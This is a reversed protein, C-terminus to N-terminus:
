PQAFRVASPPKAKVRGYRRPLEWCWLKVPPPLFRVAFTDEAEYPHPMEAGPWSPIRALPLWDIVGAEFAVMTIPKGSAPGVQEAM